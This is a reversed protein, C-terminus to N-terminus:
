AEESEAKRKRSKKKKNGKKQTGWARCQKLKKNLAKLEAMDVEYNGCGHKGEKLERMMQGLKAVRNAVADIAAADAKVEAENTDQFRTRIYGVIDIQPSGSNESDTKGEGSSSAEGDTNVYENAIMLSALGVEGPAFLMPLDSVIADDCIKMAADHMPRLDEGVLKRKEGEEGPFAILKRGKETKLFTRLDETYSLVTKYPSFVLLDFDIGEILRIEADLIDNIPVPASMEKTGMELYGVLIMCDEVKTALFAAAALMCKPDHAMVSNSLYFRRFLLCATAAVKAARRCSSLMAHPGVLLPIKSCYFTVLSAEDSPTLLPHGGRSASTCTPGYNPDSEQMLPAGGGDDATAKPRDGRTDAFGYVALPNSAGGETAADGMTADGDGDGGEAERALVDRVRRNARDRLSSLEAPSLRWKKAQSSEEYHM